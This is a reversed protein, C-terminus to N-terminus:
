LWKLIEEVSLGEEKFVMDYLDDDCIDLQNVLKELDGDDKLGSRSAGDAM